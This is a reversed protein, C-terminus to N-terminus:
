RTSSISVPQPWLHRPAEGDDVEARVGEPQHDEGPHRRVLRPPPPLAGVLDVLRHADALPLLVGALQPRLRHLARQLRDLQERVEAAGGAHALDARQRGRRDALRGVALLEQLRRALPGPHLDLHERALLLGAVAVQGRDVARREAVAHREVEAAARHLEDLHGVAARSPREQRSPATMVVSRKRGSSRTLRLCILASL